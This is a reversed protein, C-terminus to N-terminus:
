RNRWPRPERGEFLAHLRVKLYDLVGEVLADDAGGTINRYALGELMLGGIAGAVPFADGLIRWHPFRELTVALWQENLHRLAPRLVKGLKVDTRSAVVLEQHAAYDRETLQKWVTEILHDLPDATITENFLDRRYAQLRRDNLYEITAAIIDAKSRYHHQISGRSIGAYEVITSITTKVYGLDVLSDLTAELLKDRTLASKQAQWTIPPEESDVAVNVRREVM